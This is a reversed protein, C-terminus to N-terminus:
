EINEKNKEAQEKGHKDFSTAIVRYGGIKCVLGHKTESTILIQKKTNQTKHKTNKLQM